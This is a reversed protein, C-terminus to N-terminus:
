SKFHWYNSYKVIKKRKKEIKNKTINRLIESNTQHARSSNIEERVACKLGEESKTIVVVRDNSSNRNKGMNAIRNIIPFLLLLLM